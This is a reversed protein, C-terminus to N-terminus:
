KWDESYEKTYDSFVTVKIHHQNINTVDQTNIIGKNICMDFKNINRTYIKSGTFMNRIYGQHFVIQSNHRIVLQTAHCTILAHYSVAYDQVIVIVKIGRAKAKEISEVLPDGYYDSGGNGRDLLILTDGTYTDIEKEIFQLNDAYKAIFYPPLAIYKDFAYTYNSFNIIIISILLQILNM